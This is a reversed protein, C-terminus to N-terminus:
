NLINLRNKNDIFMVTNNIIIPHTIMKSPLKRVEKLKGNIEFKILYSNELFMVIENNIFLFDKIATLKKKADLYNAIQADIDSSYIIKKNILDLAILYNNNTVTFVFNNNIIPKLVSSFNFINEISGSIKDFLYTNTNSSIIVKDNNNVIQNGFFLNSPNYDISKNLNTFWNINAKNFNISYISGYSNIFFVTDAGNTSINNVFQNKVVTQETPIKNILNGNNKNFFFLDNDQNSAIIVNKLIKLNSRFPIKYNKAWILKKTKISYAYLYGINDATYVVNDEIILNLQKKINKFKKKYFNFKSIIENQIISYIIINGRQDNIILNNEYFLIFNNIKHTSLKKSKSIIKNNNKYKFNESNNNYKYYIDNWVNNTIAKTIQFNFNKDLNIVKEFTNRSTSIKEFGEFLKEQEKSLNQNDWIGSNKDFSCNTFLFFIILIFIKKM